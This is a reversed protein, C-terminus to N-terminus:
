CTAFCVCGVGEYKRQKVVMNDLKCTMFARIKLGAALHHSSVIYGAYINVDVNYHQEASYWRRYPFRRNKSSMKRFQEALVRIPEDFTVKIGCYDVATGHMDM